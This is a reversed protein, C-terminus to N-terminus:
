DLSMSLTASSLIPMNTARVRRMKPQLVPIKPSLPRALGALSRRRLPEGSQRERDAGKAVLQLVRASRASRAAEFAALQACIYDLGQGAPASSRNPLENDGDCLALIRKRGRATRSKMTGVSIGALRAADGYSHGAAAVLLVAERQKAPLTGFARVFDSLDMSWTQEADPAPIEEGAQDDLSTERWARRLRTKTENRLITFLWAKLNTGPTFHGRARWAKALTEQAVDEAIGYRGCIKRSFSRLYPILAILDQEFTDVAPAKSKNCVAAGPMEIENAASM